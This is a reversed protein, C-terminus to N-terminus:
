EVSDVSPLNRQDNSQNNQSSSDIQHNQQNLSRDPEAANEGQRSRDRVVCDNFNLIKVLKNGM